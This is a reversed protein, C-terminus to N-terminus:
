GYDLLLLGQRVLCVFLKSVSGNGLGARVDVNELKSVSINLFSCHKIWCFCCERNNISWKSYMSYDASIRMTQRTVCEKPHRYQTKTASPIGSTLSNDFTDFIGEGSALLGPVHCTHSAGWCRLVPQIQNSCQQGHVVCLYIDILQLSGTLFTLAMASTPGLLRWSSLCHSYNVRPQQAKLQTDFPWHQTLSSPRSVTPGKRPSRAGYLPLM